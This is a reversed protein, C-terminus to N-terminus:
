GAKRELAYAERYRRDASSLRRSRRRYAWVDMITRGSVLMQVGTVAWSGAPQLWSAAASCSPLLASIGVCLLSAAAILCAYWFQDALKFRLDQMIAQTSLMYDAIQDASAQSFLIDLEREATLAEGWDAIAYLTAAAALSAAAQQTHSMSQLKAPLQERVRALPVSAASAPMAASMHWLTMAVVAMFMIRLM